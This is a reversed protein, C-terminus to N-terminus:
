KLPLIYGSLEAREVLARNKEYAVLDDYTLKGVDFHIGKALGLSAVM